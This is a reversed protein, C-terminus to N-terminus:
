RYLDTQTFSWTSELKLFDNDRLQYAKPRDNADSHALRLTLL